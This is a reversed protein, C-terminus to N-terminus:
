RFHNSKLQLYLYRFTSHFSHLTFRRVEILKEFKRHLRFCRIRHCLVISKIRKWEYRKMIHRYTYLLRLFRSALMSSIGLFLVATKLHNITNTTLLWNQKHIHQQYTHATRALLITLNVSNMIYIKRHINKKPEMRRKGFLRCVTFM